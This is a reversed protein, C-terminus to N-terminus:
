AAVFIRVLTVVVFLAITPILLWRAQYISQDRSNSQRRVPSNSQGSFCPDQLLRHYHALEIQGGHRSTGLERQVADVELIQRPANELHLRTEASRANRAEMLPISAIIQLCNSRSHEIERLLIQQRLAATEQEATNREYERDINRHSLFEPEVIQTTPLPRAIWNSTAM